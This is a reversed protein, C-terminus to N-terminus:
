PGPQVPGGLVTADYVAGDGNRVEPFSNYVKRNALPIHLMGRGCCYGCEKTTWLGSAM